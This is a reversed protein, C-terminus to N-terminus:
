KIKIEDLFLTIANTQEGFSAITKPNYFYAQNSEYLPVMFDHDITYKSLKKLTSIRNETTVAKSAEEFLKDYELDNQSNDYKHPSRSKFSSFMLLPDVNNCVRGSYSIPSEIATKKSLFKETSPYFNAKFGFKAFQSNLKAFEAKRQESFGGFSYVPIPWVKEKMSIPLRSFYSKALELDYNIIISADNKWYSSPLFEYSPKALEDGAILDNRNIGYKLAKRFDSNASLVNQNTFYITYIASPDKSQYTSMKQSIPFFSIDYNINPVVKKYLAISDNGPLIKSRKKLLIRDDNEDEVMYAGAGIPWKKWTILDDNLASRKSFSFYARTLAYLFSPNPSKLKVVVTLPGTIKVGEVLGSRFKTGPAIKEVGLINGLYIEYFSRESSFFGRLLTFELDASTVPSGDHFTLNDKLILEYTGDKSSWKWDKLLGPQLEFSDTTLLLQGLVAKNFTSLVDGGANAAYPKSGDRLLLVNMQSANVTLSWLIILVLLRFPEILKNLLTWQIFNLIKM